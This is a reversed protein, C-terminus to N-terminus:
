AALPPSPSEPDDTPVFSWFPSRLSALRAYNTGPARVLHRLRAFIARPASAERLSPAREIVPPENGGEDWIVYGVVVYAQGGSSWSHFRAELRPM